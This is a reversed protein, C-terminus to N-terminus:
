RGFQLAKMVGVIDGGQHAGFFCLADAGFIAFAKADAGIAVWDVAFYKATGGGARPTHQQRCPQGGRAPNHMHWTAARMM